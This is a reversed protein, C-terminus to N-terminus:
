DNNGIIIEIPEEIPLTGKFYDTAYAFLRDQFHFVYLRTFAGSWEGVKTQSKLRWYLGSETTSIDVTIQVNRSFGRVKQETIKKTKTQKPM